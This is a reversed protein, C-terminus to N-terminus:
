EFNDLAKKKKKKVKSKFCKIILPKILDVINEVSM